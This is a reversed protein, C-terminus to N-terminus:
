GVSASTRAFNTKNLTRRVTQGSIEDVIDLAVLRDSLLNLTWRSRGDPPPSCALAILRAEGAGDLSRKRSPADQKKRSLAAELGKQVFRQRTNRPTNVHCGFAEAAAEDTWAPGSADITLLVNAHRIKYVPAKGRRVFAELDAREKATLRVVYKKKM